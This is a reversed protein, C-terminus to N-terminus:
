PRRDAAVFYLDEKAVYKVLIVRTGKPLTKGGPVTRCRVVHRTGEPDTRVPHSRGEWALVRGRLNTLAVAVHAAGLEIGLIACADDQFQLVIPRRGGRSAGPGVEAVLGTPLLAGVIESVTSRALDTRRAIEARSIQQERWILRLVSDSLPRGAGNRPVRKESRGHETNRDM